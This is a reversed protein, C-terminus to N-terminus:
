KDRSTSVEETEEFDKVSFVEDDSNKVDSERICDRANPKQNALARFEALSVKGRGNKFACLYLTM